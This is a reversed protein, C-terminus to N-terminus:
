TCRCFHKARRAEKTGARKHTSVLFVRSVNFIASTRSVFKTADREYDNELDELFCDRLKLERCIFARSELEGVYVSKKYFNYMAHKQYFKIMKCLSFVQTRSRKIFRGLKASRYLKKKKIFLQKVFFSCSVYVSKKFVRICTCLLVLYKTKIIYKTFINILFILLM